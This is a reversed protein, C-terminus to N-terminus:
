GVQAHEFGIEPLGSIPPSRWPLPRRTRRSARKAREERHPPNLYAIEPHTRIGIRGCRRGCAPWASPSNFAVSGTTMGALAAGPDRKACGLVLEAARSGPGVYGPTASRSSLQRNASVPLCPDR